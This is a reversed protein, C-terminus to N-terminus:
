SRLISALLRNESLSLAPDYGEREREVAELRRSEERLSMAQEPTM